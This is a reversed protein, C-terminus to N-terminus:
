GSSARSSPWSASERCWRRGFRRGAPYDFGPPMVGVVTFPERDLVLSPGSSTRTPASDSKGCSTAWCSWAPAGRRDDDARFGRGLLPAVGLTRFFSWTVLAPSRSRSVVRGTMTFGQNTSPMGALEEFLVASGSRWDRFAPYSMEVFPQSREPDQQWVLV